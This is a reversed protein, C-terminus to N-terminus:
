KRDDKDKGKHKGKKGDGDDKRRDVDNRRDRVVVGPRNRVVVVPRDHVIVAPRDHVIVQTSKGNKWKGNGVGRNKHNGNDQHGSYNPLNNKYRNDHQTSVVVVKKQANASLNIGICFALGIFLLKKM